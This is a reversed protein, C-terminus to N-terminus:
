VATLTVEERGGLGCVVPFSKEKPGNPGPKYHVTPPFYAYLATNRPNPSKNPGSGHVLLSHFLIASGAKLPVEIQGSTDIDKRDTMKEEQERAIRGWDQLGWLHSKPIVRFCGNEPTSDNLAISVTVLSPPEMPWYASDQHLGHISGHFAPKLMLTSRFLLLDPGLLSNLVKVLKPHRALRKFIESLSSTGEIKRLVPLGGQEKQKAYPEIQFQSAAPGNKAELERYLLHLRHVEAQCEAVEKPSLLQEVVLHGQEEFRKGYDQGKM